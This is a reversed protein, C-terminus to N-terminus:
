QGRILRSVELDLDPDGTDIVFQGKENIKASWGPVKSIAEEWARYYGISFPRIFPATPDTDDFKGSSFSKVANWIVRNRDVRKAMNVMLKDVVEDDVPGVGTGGFFEDRLGTGFDFKDKTRLEGTGGGLDGLLDFRARDPNNLLFNDEAAYGSAVSNRTQKLVQRGFEKSKPLTALEQRTFGISGDGRKLGTLNGEDDVGFAGISKGIQDAVGGEFSKKQTDTADKAAETAAKKRAAQRNRVRALEKSRKLTFKGSALKGQLESLGEGTLTDTFARAEEESMGIDKVLQENVISARDRRQAITEQVNDAGLFQKTLERETRIGAQAAAGVRDAVRLTSTTTGPGSVQEATRKAVQQGQFEAARQINQAQVVSFDQQALAEERQAQGLQLEAAQQRVGSSLLNQQAQQLQLEQLKVETDRIKKATTRVGGIDLLRSVSIQGQENVSDVLVEAPKDLGTAELVKGPVGIIGGIIDGLNPM